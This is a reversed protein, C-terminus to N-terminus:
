AISNRREQVLGGFHSAIFLIQYKAVEYNAVLHCVGNRSINWASDSLLLLMICCYQSYKKGDHLAMVCLFSDM